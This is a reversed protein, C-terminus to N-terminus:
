PGIMVNAKPWSACDTTTLLIVGAAYVRRARSPTLACNPCFVAFIPAAYPRTQADHGADLVDYL